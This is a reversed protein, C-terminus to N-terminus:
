PTGAPKNPAGAKVMDALVQLPNSSAGEFRLEPAGRQEMKQLFKVVRDPRPNDQHWIARTQICRLAILVLVATRFEPMAATPMATDKLPRRLLEELLATDNAPNGTDIRRGIHNAWAHALRLPIELPGSEALFASLAKGVDTDGTGSVALAEAAEPGRFLHELAVDRQLPITATPNSWWVAIEDAFLLGFVDLSYVEEPTAQEQPASAKVAATSKFSLYGSAPVTTVGKLADFAKKVNRATRQVIARTEKLEAQTLM